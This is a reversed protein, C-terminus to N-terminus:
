RKDCTQAALLVCDARSLNVQLRIVCIALQRKGSHRPANLRTRHDTLTLLPYGVIIGASIGDRRHRFTRAQLEQVSGIRRILYDERAVSCITM